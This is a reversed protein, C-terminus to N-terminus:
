KHLIIPHQEENTIDAHNLRGGVRLLGDADIVPCLKALVSSNPLKASHKIREIDEGFTEYQVSKIIVVESPSVISCPCYQEAHVGKQSLM